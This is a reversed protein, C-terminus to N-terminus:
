QRASRELGTGISVLPPISIPLKGGIPIAGILARAAAQQSSPSGGWAVLYAPAFPVQNLLYPTGFSVVVVPKRTETLKQVFDIFARPADATASSSSINVYSGVVVVDAQSAAAMVRAYNPEADDASIFARRLSTVGRSLEADFRTGAGLDSRRAYTVSLVTPRRTSSVLPVANLSDKVLVLGAEALKDAAAVHASDGVVERVRKLSVLRSRHLGLRHKLALVRRVSRDIREETYKGQAVGQVVADIAGTIDSPMLLVDAGAEIARRSAELGGFRDVVGAMDMADTVLLGDFGLENRLLDTMVKPSLTAPIEASDLAPLYGHFTMMAGVGADIAAKFPVLEVSDLRARSANVASLALHSNTETDGHGPFHKGTALM